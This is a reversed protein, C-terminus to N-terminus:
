RELTVAMLGIVVETSVASVTISQLTRTGDLPLDLIVGAGGPINRNDAGRLILYSEVDRTIVGSKLLVRYPRPAKLSFAYGDVYFDQDIPCWTEPNVLPLSSTSGDSFTVTVLGNGMHCQLHNTSGAM